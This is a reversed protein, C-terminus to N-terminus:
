FIDLRFIKELNLLCMRLILTKGVTALWFVVRVREFAYGIDKWNFKCSIVPFPLM